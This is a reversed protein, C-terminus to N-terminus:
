DNEKEKLNKHVNRIWVWTAKIRHTKKLYKAVDKWSAGAERLQKIEAMHMLIRKTKPAPKKKKGYRRMKIEDIEHAIKLDIEAKSSVLFTLSEEYQLRVIIKKLIQDAETESVGLAAAIVKRKAEASFSALKRILRSEEM